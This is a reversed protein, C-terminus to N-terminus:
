RAPKMVAGPCLGIARSLRDQGSAGRRPASRARNPSTQGKTRLPLDEMRETAMAMVAIMKAACSVATDVENLKQPSSGARGQHRVAAETQADGVVKGGRVM